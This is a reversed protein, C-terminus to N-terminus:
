MHEMYEYIRAKLKDQHLKLNRATEEFPFEEHVDVNIDDNALLFSEFKVKHYARKIQRRSEKKFFVLYDSIDIQRVSQGADVKSSQKASKVYSSLQPLESSKQLLDKIRFTPISANKSAQM